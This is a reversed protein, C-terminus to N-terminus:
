QGDKQANTHLSTFKSNDDRSSPTGEDDGNDIQSVAEAVLRPM